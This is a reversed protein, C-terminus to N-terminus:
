GAAGLRQALTFVAFLFPQHLLYVLLSRRGLATAASLRGGASIGTLDFRPLGGPYFWQGAAIGLLVVGFWPFLPFYDLQFLDRPHLGLPLLAASPVPVSGLALGSVIWLGGIPLNWWGLRLFPYALLTATGILHLVGFLIVPQGIYAWSVLTIVAGWGLIKLGRAVYHRYPAPCGSRATHRATSLWLSSGVLLLFLIAPARGFIRWAGTFVNARYYGFLTLDFAFHYIVMLGIALGRLADLEPYRQRGPAHRLLLFDGVRQLV